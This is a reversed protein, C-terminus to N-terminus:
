SGSVLRHVASILHLTRKRLRKVLSDGQLSQNLTAHYTRELDIEFDIADSKTPLKQELADSSCNEGDRSTDSVFRDLNLSGHLRFAQNVFTENLNSFTALAKACTSGAPGQIRALTEAAVDVPITFESEECQSESAQQPIRSWFGFPGPQSSPENCGFARVRASVLKELRYLKLRTSEASAAFIIRGASDIDVDVSSQVDDIRGQRGLNMRPFQSETKHPRRLLQLHEWDAQSPADLDRLEQLLKRAIGQRSTGTASLAQIMELADNIFDGEFGIPASESLIKLVSSRVAGTADWLHEVLSEESWSYRLQLEFPEAVRTM